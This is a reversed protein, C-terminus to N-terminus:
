NTKKLPLLSLHTSIALPPSGNLYSTLTKLTPILNKNAVHKFQTIKTHTIYVNINRVRSHVWTVQDPLFSLLFVRSGPVVMGSKLVAM